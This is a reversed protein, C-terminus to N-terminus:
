RMQECFWARNYIARFAARAVRIVHRHATDVQHFRANELFITVACHQKGVQQLAQWEEKVTKWTLEVLWLPVAADRALRNEFWVDYDGERAEIGLTIDAHHPPEVGPRTVDRAREIVRHLPGSLAGPQGRELIRKTFLRHPLQGSRYVSDLEEPSFREYHPMLGETLRDVGELLTVWVANQSFEDLNRCREEVRHCFSLALQVRPANEDVIARQLCELVQRAYDHPGMAKTEPEAAIPLWAKVCEGLTTPEVDVREKVQDRFRGSKLFPYWRDVM